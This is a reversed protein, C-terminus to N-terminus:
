KQSWHAAKGDATCGKPTVSKLLKGPSYAPDDTADQAELYIPEGACHLAIEIEGSSEFPAATFFPCFSGCYAERDNRCYLATFANDKERILRFYRGQDIIKLKGIDKFM